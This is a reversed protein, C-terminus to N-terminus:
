YSTFMRILYGLVLGVLLAVWQGSEIFNNWANSIDALIDPSSQQAIVVWSSLAMLSPYLWGKPFQPKM